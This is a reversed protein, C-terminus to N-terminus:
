ILCGLEVFDWTIKLVLIRFLFFCHIWNFWLFSFSFCYRSTNSNVGPLSRPSTAMPSILMKTLLILIIVTSTTLLLPHVTPNLCLPGSTFCYIPATIVTLLARIILPQLLLLLLMLLLTITILTFATTTPHHTSM